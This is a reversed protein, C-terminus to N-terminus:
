KKFFDWLQQPLEKGRAVAITAGVALVLYVPLLVIIKPIYFLQGIKTRLREADLEIRRVEIAHARNKDNESETFEMEKKERDTLDTRKDNIMPPTYWLKVAEKHKTLM